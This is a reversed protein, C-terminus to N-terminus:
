DYPLMSLIDHQTLSRLYNAVENAPSVVAVGSVQICINNDTCTINVRFFSSQWNGWRPNFVIQLVSNDFIYQVRQCETVNPYM